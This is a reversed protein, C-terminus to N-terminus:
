PRATWIVQWSAGAASTVDLLGTLTGTQEDEASWTLSAGAPLTLTGDGTAVSVSGTYVVVTVSVTGANDTLSWAADQTGHAVLEVPEAEAAACVTVTGAVTYPTAGDLGTDTTTVAGAPSTSYRRLFPTRASGTDDCLLVFEADVGPM